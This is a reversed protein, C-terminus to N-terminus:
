SGFWKLTALGAIGLGEYFRAFYREKGNDM